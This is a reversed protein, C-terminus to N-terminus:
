ATTSGGVAPREPVRVDVYSASELDPDALVAAAAAWKAGLNAGTGFRLRIGGRMRAEVGYERSRDVRRVLPRLPEPAAGAVRAQALAGGKLRGSAPLRDVDIRPLNEDADIGPLVTGDAAVAAEIGGARAALAPPREIVEVELGRPFSPSARVSEVTPFRAVASELRGLDVNLTTMEEGARTLAATIRKREGSNVGEVTVDSVAVLSSDRLWLFYGAALAALAGAVIIIWRRLPAGGRRRPPRGAGRRRRDAGGSRLRASRRKDKPGNGAKGGATRKAKARGTTRAETAARRRGAPTAATSGM